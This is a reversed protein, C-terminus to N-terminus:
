CIASRALSFSLCSRMSRMVISHQESCKEALTAVHKKIAVKAEPVVGNCPSFVLPIFTSQEVERIYESYEHKKDGEFRRYLPGQVSLKAHSPLVGEYTM